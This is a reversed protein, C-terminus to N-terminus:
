FYNRAVNYCRVGIRDWMNVVQMRDDFVGMINYKNALNEFFIEEKVVCDKRHDGEKRFHIEHYTIFNNELWEKTRQQCVDNGERGTVLLIKHGSGSLDTLIWIVDDFPLDTHCLEYQYPGRNGAMNTLTGDLDFIYATPLDKNPVYKKHYVTSDLYVSKYNVDKQYKSFLEKYKEFMKAIVDQPVQYDISRMDNRSICVDPTVSMFDDNLHLDYDNKNAWDKFFNRVKESLNTDSIVINKGKSTNLISHQIETVTQENKPKHIYVPARCSGFVMKRIDDRNINVWEEHTSMNKERIFKEAWTTKGSGPLGMTLILKNKM